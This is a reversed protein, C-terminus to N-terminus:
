PVVCSVINSNFESRKEVGLINVYTLVGINYTGSPLSSIQVRRKNTDLRVSSYSSIATAFDFFGNNYFVDFHSYVGKAPESWSVTINGVADVSCGSAGSFELSTPADISPTICKALLGSRNEVVNGSSDYTFPIVLFCYEDSSLPDVGTITIENAVKYNFSIVDLDSLNTEVPHNLFSPSGSPPGQYEVLLGDLVGAELNPPDIEIYIEDVKNLEKAPHIKVIGSFGAIEPETTILKVASKINKGNNCSITQCLVVMVEYETLSDLDSITTTTQDFSVKKCFINTSGEQGNCSSEPNHTKLDGAQDKRKYFIRYSDFAGNGANWTVRISTLGSAGPSIKLTLGETDFNYSALDASLTTIELYKSNAESLYESDGAYTILGQHKARVRTFYKTDPKLGNLIVSRNTNSVQFTKRQPSVFFENDFDAPSLYTSDLVIVEYETVDIEAPSALSGLKKALPWEVLISDLGETGSRNFAGGIGQFDATLNSFTTVPLIKESLSYVGNENFIEVQFNYTSNSNLGGVTYRLFGRYDPRLSLGPVTIPIKLGDYSIKYTILSSDISAPYFFVEVKNNSIAKVDEIGSFKLVSVKSDVGKTVESNKEEVTGVCSGLLISCFIIFINKITKKMNLM